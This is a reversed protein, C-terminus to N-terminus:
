TVRLTMRMDPAHVTCVIKYTGRRRMKRQFTGSSKLASRFIRPGRRVTVNHADSGVWKWKVTTGKSVSVSKPKFFNDGVKVSKTRAAAPAAALLTLILALFLIRM